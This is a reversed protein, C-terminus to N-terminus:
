HMQIYEMLSMKSFYSNFPTYILFTYLFYAFYCIIIVPKLLTRTERNFFKLIWPISLAQFIQFYNATRAIYNATGFLAAFMIAANLTSFNMFLNDIKEGSQSLENRVLFSLAIPAWAVLLRFINVGEGSFSGDAYEKGLFSAVSVLTSSAVQLLLGGAAFLIIMFWTIKTWPKFNLFVAILFLFAFTHFLSALAIWLVFPIYKKRIFRDIGILSLAISICQRMAAATFMFTGLTWFLFFSLLFDPSYKRLFWIYISNTAVSYLMLYDQSNFGIHKIITNVLSFAPSEGLSWVIGNFVSGKSSVLYEYIQRYEGTDNCWYRLGIFVSCAVALILFFFKDKKIYIKEGLKGEKKTSAIDYFFALGLSSFFFPWLGSAVSLM